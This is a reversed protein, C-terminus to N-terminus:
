RGVSLWRVMRGIVAPIYAWGLAAVGGVILVYGLLSGVTLVLVIGAIVAAAAIISVALL